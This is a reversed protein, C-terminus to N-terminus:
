RHPCSLDCWGCQRERYVRSVREAVIEASTQTQMALAVRQGAGLPAATSYRLIV